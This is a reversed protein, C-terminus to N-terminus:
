DKVWCGRNEWYLGAEELDEKAEGGGRRKEKEKFDEEKDDTEEDEDYEEWGAGEM